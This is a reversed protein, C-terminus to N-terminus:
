TTYLTKAKEKMPFLEKQKHKVKPTWLLAWSFYQKQRTTVFRSSSRVTQLLSRTARSTARIGISTVAAAESGKKM